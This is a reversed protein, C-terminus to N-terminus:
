RGALNQGPRIGLPSRDYQALLDAPNRYVAICGYRRLEDETWGGSMLGIMSLGAKAAAQADWPTDGIV